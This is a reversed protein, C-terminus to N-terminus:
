SERLGADKPSASGMVTRGVDVCVVVLAVCLGLVLLLAGLTLAPRTHFVLWAPRWWGHLHRRHYPVVLFFWRPHLVWDTAILVLSSLLAGLAFRELGRVTM